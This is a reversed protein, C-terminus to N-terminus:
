AADRQQHYIPTLVICSEQGDTNALALGVDNHLVLMGYRARPVFFGVEGSHVDTDATFFLSGIPDLQLWAEDADSAAGGYGTWAADSGSLNAPNGTAATASDSFGIALNASKGATPSSFLEIWARVSYLSAPFEGLDFKASQRYAGNGLGSITLADTPTPQGDTGVFGSAIGLSIPTGEVYNISSLLAM